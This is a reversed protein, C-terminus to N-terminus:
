KIKSIKECLLVMTKVDKECYTKIRELNGLWYNEHVQSGDIDDKPTPIGLSYAAEEFTVDLTSFGKWMEKLDILSVEWPKKNHTSISQPVPIGHMILKRQIWPIDFNKINWGTPQYGNAGAKHFLGAILKMMKEEDDDAITSITVGDNKWVGYSLCAIRGFEPFLAVKEDWAKAPNVYNLRNAKKEWIHAGEVNKQQLEEYSSYKGCTEIDFFLMTKLVSESINMKKIKLNYVYKIM